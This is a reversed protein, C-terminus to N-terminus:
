RTIERLTRDWIRGNWRHAGRRAGPLTKYTLVFRLSNSRAPALVTGSDPAILVYRCIDAPATKWRTLQREIREDDSVQARDDHEPDRGFSVFSV